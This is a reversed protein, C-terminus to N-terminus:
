TLFLCASSEQAFACQPQPQSGSSLKVEWVAAGLLESQAAESFTALRTGELSCLAPQERRHVCPMKLSLRGEARLLACKSHTELEALWWCLVLACPAPPLGSGGQRFHSSLALNSFPLHQKGPCLRMPASTPERHLTGGELICSGSALKTGNRLHARLPDRGLQSLILHQPRYM